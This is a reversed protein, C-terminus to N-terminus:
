SSTEGSTVENLRASACGSNVFETGISKVITKLSGIFAADKVAPSMPLVPVAVFTVQDTAWNFLVVNVTAAVEDPSPVKIGRNSAPLTVSIAPLAFLL